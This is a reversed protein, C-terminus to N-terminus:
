AAVREKAPMPSDSAGHPDNAVEAMVPLWEPPPWDDRICRAVVAAWERTEPRPLRGLVLSRSGVVDAARSM